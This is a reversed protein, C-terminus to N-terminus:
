QFKYRIVVIGSGGAKGGGGGGGMNTSGATPSPGGDGGGGVGGPRVAQPGYLTHNGGGAGGAFYRTSSVPGGEGYSPAPPGFFADSVYSGDGGVGGLSSTGYVPGGGGGVAGAGGGGGGGNDSSGSSGSGGGGDNGQSPSVPPTNGTGGLRSGDSGGGGAGSGGTNGVTTDTQGAGGGTSTITSFISNSGDTGVGSTPAGAGGSGVTVPYAQVSIPITSPGSLPNATGCSYFTRFGGAGGGGFQKFNYQSGAGDGGGGGGAVVLYEAVACDGSGATVCFTGPGTFVHTKYDGSTTITGGTAIIFSSGTSDIEGGGIVKWGRTSDVYLLVISVGLTDEGYTENTGNIKDTGNPSITLKNTNFTSAYDSVAIIDGVSGAPLNLTFAGSSTNCFYGNGAVGTFTATKPTTDWDVSSLGQYLGQDILTTGCSIIGM